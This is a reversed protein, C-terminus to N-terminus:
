ELPQERWPAFVCLGRLLFRDNVVPLIQIISNFYVADTGHATVVRLPPSRHFEIEIFCCSYQGSRGGRQSRQQFFQRAIPDFCVFAGVRPASIVHDAVQYVSLSSVPDRSYFNNEIVALRAWEVREVAESLKFLALAFSEFIQQVLEGRQSLSIQRRKSLHFDARAIELFGALMGGKSSDSQFFQQRCPHRM